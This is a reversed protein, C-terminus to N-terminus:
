RWDFRRNSYLVYGAYGWGGGGLLRGHVGGHVAGDRVGAECGALGAHDDAEAPALEAEGLGFREGAREVVCADDNPGHGSQSHRAVVGAGHTDEIEVHVDLRVFDVPDGRGQAPEQGLVDERRGAPHCGGARPLRGDVLPSRSPSRNAPCTFLVSRTGGRM